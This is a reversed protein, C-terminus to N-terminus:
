TSGQRAIKKVNHQTKEIHRKIGTKEAHVEFKISGELFIGSFDWLVGHVSSSSKQSEGGGSSSKQSEGVQEAVKPTDHVSRTTQWREDAENTDVIPAGEESNTGVSRSTFREQRLREFIEHPTEEENQAEQQTESQQLGM